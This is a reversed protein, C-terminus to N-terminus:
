LVFSVKVVGFIAASVGVNMTAEFTDVTGVEGASRFSFSVVQPYRQYPVFKDDKWKAITRRGRGMWQLFVITMINM